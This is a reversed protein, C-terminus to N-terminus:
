VTTPYDRLALRLRTSCIRIRSYSTADRPRTAVRSHRPMPLRLIENEDKGGNEEDTKDSDETNDSDDFKANLTTFEVITLGNTTGNFAAVALIYETNPNLEEARITIDKNPEINHGNSLIHTATPPIYQLEECIWVAIEANTTSVTAEVAYSDITIIDITATPLAQDESTRNCCCLILLYLFLTIRKM